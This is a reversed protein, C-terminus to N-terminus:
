CATNRDALTVLNMVKINFDEAELLEELGIHLRFNWQNNPNAPNNIQEAKPDPHRLTEDMGLLDQIPFIAWMAPSFLHQVIMDKILNGDARQPAQGWKGLIHNYFRQALKQNEEWWGRLTSMDHSSPTGVSWYEFDNPHGFEVKPNKPMRQINLGLIGMERMTPPVSDPVMGLDEGCPLMSTAQTIAPLKQLAQDRWFQEHRKYFYDTYLENLILKTGHDLDRYSYTDQYSHRPNFAEGNSFPAEIFLVEAHLRFLGNKLQEVRAKEEIPTNDTPSLHAAVKKQTDFEPKFLYCHYAYEELYKEVVYQTETGFIEDLMYRRIYPTAMRFHDFWLGKSRLEDLQFPLSPNFQGLIGQEAHPPIEWIRFFGLIHDLRFVDFYQAFHTLRKRWWAYGDKAMEAWNYTPTKWNQGSVAFNDPPAGAQSKLNFLKPSVWADVSNGSIGIPIDGKLVVGQSRAYEVAELLQKHLHYQCFYHVAIDDYHPAKPDTIEDLVTESFAAFRDWQEFNPTGFLDRLYSFAAYPKLWDSHQRFFAQYDAEQLAKEKNEDYILKFYRSKIRMVELYDVYTKSNLINQQTQAIEKALKSSIKGMQNINLYMPHLAFVSIGAYPCSDVWNRNAISDNIPLIQILKLGMKKSWDVLLKLDTFEGVGMSAQSRLSFVPIALGAGKWFGAPFRFKQDSIVAIQKEAEFIPIQYYRNEGIEWTDLEKTQPNYIAYKYSFPVNPTKLEVEAEWLPYAYTNMVVAKAKDWDGLAKDSGIIALKRGQPVRPALMQFRVVVANAKSGTKSVTRKALNQKLLANEFASSFLVNDLDQPNRWYDQVFVTEFTKGVSLARNKGWEWRIAGTNENKLFYKYEIELGAVEPMEVELLWNGGGTAKLPVAKEAQWDGLYKSAGCVFLREGWQTHYNIGLLLKM